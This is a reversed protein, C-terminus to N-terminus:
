QAVIPEIVIEVRRNQARGAPTSNSVRPKEEGMGYAALRQPIVGKGRLYALVSAARKESLQKNYSNSGTSDTHGILTLHTKGYKNVIKAIKDLTSYFGPKIQTSNTDFSTQSTMTVMLVNQPLKEVLIAGSHMENQLQREFDKKQNDMYTGVAAGAIGGVIGYLVARQKNKAGLGALVGIGAGILAGKEADTMDRRNGYEDTACASLTLLAAICLPAFRITQM